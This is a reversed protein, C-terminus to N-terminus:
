HIKERIKKWINKIRKIQFTLKQIKREFILGKNNKWKLLMERTVPRYDIFVNPIILYSDSVNTKVSMKRHLFHAYLCEEKVLEGNRNCAIRYLAGEKKEYIIDEFENENNSIREYFSFLHKLKFYHTNLYAEYCNFSDRLYLPQPDIDDFCRGKSSFGTWVKEPFLQYYRYSVGYPIEDFIYNNPSTFVDKWFPGNNLEQFRDPNFNYEYFANDGVGRASKWVTDFSDDKTRQIHLHGLVLIYNYKTLIDTTIFNRINGFILDSDCYGWFEYKNTYESFLLGFLAKYDCLKHPRELVVPMGLKEEARKKIDNLKCNHIKINSAVSKVKQDTVLLFDVDKNEECSKLWFAFFNPLKGFYVHIILITHMNLTNRNTNWSSINLRFGIPLYVFVIIRKQVTTGM